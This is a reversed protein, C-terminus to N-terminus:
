RVHVNRCDEGEVFRLVEGCVGRRGAFRIVLKYYTIADM